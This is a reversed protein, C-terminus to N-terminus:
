APRHVMDIHPIGDEDYPAGVAVFGHRVYFEQLHAQAALAVPAAPWHTACSDLARTMLQHGLRQGRHASSVIVRGIRVSEPDPGLLRAYAVLTGGDTAGLHRTGPLLDRGDIDQYACAQEVVFVQNRLALIDHLAVATLEAGAVDSWDLSPM